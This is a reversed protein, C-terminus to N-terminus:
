RIKTGLREKYSKPNAITLRTTQVMRPNSSLYLYSINAVSNEWIWMVRNSYFKTHSVEIVQLIPHRREERPSVRPGREELKSRPTHSVRGHTSTM